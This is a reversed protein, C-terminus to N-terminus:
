SIISLEVSSCLKVSWSPVDFTLQVATALFTADETHDRDPSCHLVLRDDTRASDEISVVMNTRIIVHDGARAVQM